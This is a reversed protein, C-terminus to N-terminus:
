SVSPTGDTTIEVEIMAASTAESDVDPFLVRKLKGTWVIHKGYGKGDINLARQTVVAKGKGVVNFLVQIYQDDDDRDYLRQLTINGPTVRGGLSQAQAMGGPYYKVEDSDLEGGTKKDWVGFNHGAVTLIVNWTDQRAGNDRVAM